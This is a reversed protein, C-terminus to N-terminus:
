RWDLEAVKGAQIEVTNPRSRDTDFWLRFTGAELRPYVAAFVSRGGVLRELVATHVRQFDQGVPSIEIECGRLEPPTYLVLAGFSGGIDLVVHEAHGRSWYGAGEQKTLDHVNV